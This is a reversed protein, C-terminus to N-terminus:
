ATRASTPSRRTSRRGEAMEGRAAARPRQPHPAVRPRDDRAAARRRDRGDHVDVEEAPRPLLEGCREAPRRGCRCVPRAWQQQQQRRRHRQRGRGCRRDGRRRRRRGEEPRHPLGGGQGGQAGGGGQAGQHDVRRAGQVGGGRGDDDDQESGGQGGQRRRRHLRRGAPGDRDFEDSRPREVEDAPGDDAVGACGRRRSRGSGGGGGSGGGSGGITRLRVRVVRRGAPRPGQAAARWAARCGGAACRAGARRAQVGGALRRTGVSAGSLARRKWMCIAARQKRRPAHLRESRGVAPASPAVQRTTRRRGAARRGGSLDRGDRRVAGANARAAEGM